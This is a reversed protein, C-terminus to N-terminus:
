LESTHEESRPKSVYRLGTERVHKEAKRYNTFVEYDMTHVGNAKLFAQGAARDLELQASEYSPAFVPFGRKRYTDLERLWKVNDSTLILDAWSMSKQWEERELKEILGDGTKRRLKTEKDYAMCTRVHHGAKMCRLAFD